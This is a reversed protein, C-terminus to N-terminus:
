HSVQSISSPQAPMSALCFRALALILLLRHQTERDQQEDVMLLAQEQIKRLASCVEPQTNKNETQMCRRYDRCIAKTESDGCGSMTRESQLACPPGVIPSWPSIPSHM